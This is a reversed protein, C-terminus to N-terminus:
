NGRAAAGPAPGFAAAVYAEVLGQRLPLHDLAAELAEPTNPFPKGDPGKVGDLAVLAARMVAADGGEKALRDRQSEPLLRFRATLTHTSHGGGEPLRVTVPWAFEPAPDLVFM